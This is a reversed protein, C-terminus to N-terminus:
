RIKGNKPKMMSQQLQQQLPQEVPMCTCPLDPGPTAAAAATAMAARRASPSSPTSQPKKKGKIPGKGGKGVVTESAKGAQSRRGSTAATSAGVGAPLRFGPTCVTRFTRADLASTFNLGWTDNTSTDKWYVFCESAQGLRTGPQPLHVDLVRAVMTNYATIHFIRSNPTEKVVRVNVPVLDDSIQEWCVGGTPATSVHFVEAWLRLLHGDQRPNVGGGAQSLGNSQGVASRMLRQQQQQMALMQKADMTTSSPEDCRFGKRPITGCSCGLRNNGLRLQQAANQMAAMRAAAQVATTTATHHYGNRLQAANALSQQQQQLQQQQFQQQQFQQQQAFTGNTGAVTGNTTSPNVGGGGVNGGSGGAGNQLKQSGNGSQKGSSSDGSGCPALKKATTAAVAASFVLNRNNVSSISSQHRQQSQPQNQLLPLHQHRESIPQVLEVCQSM